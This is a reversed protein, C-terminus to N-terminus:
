GQLHTWSVVFIYFELLNRGAPREHPWSIVLRCQFGLIWHRTWLPWSSSGTKLWNLGSWIVRGCKLYLYPYLERHPRCLSSRPASTYRWENKFGSAFSPPPHTMLKVKQGSWGTTILWVVWQITSQINEQGTSCFWKGCQRSDFLSEETWLTYNSQGKVM